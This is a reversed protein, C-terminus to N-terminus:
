ESEEHYTDIVSSVLDDTIMEIDTAAISCYDVAAEVLALWAAAEHEKGGFDM